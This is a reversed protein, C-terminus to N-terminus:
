KIEEGVKPLKKFEEENFYKVGTSSFGNKDTIVFWCKYTVEKNLYGKVYGTFKKM